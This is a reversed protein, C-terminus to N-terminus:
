VFSGRWPFPALIPRRGVPFSGKQGGRLRLSVPLLLLAAPMVPVMVVVIVPM